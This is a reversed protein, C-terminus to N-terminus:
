IDIKAEGAKKYSHLLKFGVVSVMVLFSPSLLRSENERSDVTSVTQKCSIGAAYKFRRCKLM